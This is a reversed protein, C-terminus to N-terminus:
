LLAQLAWLSVMGVAISLLTRRTVWAVLAAAIGALLRANGTSLDLAGGPAALEPLVIASLAAAPVFRLARVLALPLDGRLLGIASLRAGYTVLVMGALILAYRTM